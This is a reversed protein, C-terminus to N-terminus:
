LTTIPDGKQVLGSKTVSAYAAKGFLGCNGERLFVPCEEHCEKGVQTLEIEAEGISLRTGSPLTMLELGTVLFNESFRTVCLGDGRIQLSEARADAEFLTIERGKKGAFIDGVIGFGERLVADEVAQGPVGRATKIRIEAIEPM